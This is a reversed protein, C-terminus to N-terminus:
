TVSHIFRPYRGIGNSDPLKSKTLINRFIIVSISRVLVLIWSGLAAEAGAELIDSDSGSGAELIDSDSGAEAELIDSDSGAEAELIDSDSGAEAELIDSDSCNFLGFGM